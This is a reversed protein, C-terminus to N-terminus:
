ASGKIHGLDIGAQRLSHLLTSLARVDDALVECADRLAQVEAQTPPNSITLGGIDGDDNGLTVAAQDSGAKQGSLYVVNTGDSGVVTSLGQTAVVGTGAPTRVTVTFAGGTVNQIQWWWVTPPVILAINGTLTGTLEIVQCRAQAATLVVNSNGAVNISVRGSEPRATSRHDTYSTVSSAGTVIQYLPMPAVFANGIDLGKGVKVSPTGATTVKAATGGSGTGSFGSTNVNITITTAAIATVRAFSKRLNTMALSNDFWVVDGVEFGHNSGVTVVCPNAATIATVARTTSSVPGAEIQQTRSAVLQFSDNAVQVPVGNLLATGGYLGWTLGSTTSARRGFSTAPSGADFVANATVEKSAQGSSILDLNTSSNAM